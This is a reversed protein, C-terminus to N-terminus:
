MYQKEYELLVNKLIEIKNKLEIIKNNLLKIKEIELIVIDDCTLNLNNYKIPIIAVFFHFYLPTGTSNIM